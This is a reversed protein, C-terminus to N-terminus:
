NQEPDHDVGFVEKQQKVSMGTLLFEREFPNLNPFAEQVMAGNKWMDWAALFEDKTMRFTMETNGFIGAAGITVTNPSNDLIAHIPRM